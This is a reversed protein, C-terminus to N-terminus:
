QIDYHNEELGDLDVRVGVKGDGPVGHLTSLSLTDLGKDPGNIGRGGRSAVSSGAVVGGVRVNCRSDKKLIM